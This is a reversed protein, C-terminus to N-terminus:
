RCLSFAIMAGNGAAYGANANSLIKGNSAVKVSTTSSSAVGTIPVAAVGGSGFATDVAGKTTFRVVASESTSFDANMALSGAVLIRGNDQLTVALGDIGNGSQFVVQGNAGFAADASGDTNVRLLAIDHTGSAEILTGTVVVKGDSQVALKRGTTVSPFTFASIGNVGFTPDPTGNALLRAVFPQETAGVLRGALVIRGDGLVAVDTARANGNFGGPVIFAFGSSGFGSDLTGDANLRVVLAQQQRSGQNSAGTAVLVKGDTQTTAGLIGTYVNAVAITTAGATGFTADLQGSSQFRSVLLNANGAEAFVLRDQNDVAIGVVYNNVGDTPQNPPVVFGFGGYGRDVVGNKAVRVVGAIALTGSGAAIMPFYASDNSDLAYGELQVSAGLGSAAYVLPSSQVFGNSGAAGYNPNVQGAACTQADALRLAVLFCAALLCCIPTKM